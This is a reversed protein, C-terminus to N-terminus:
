LSAASRQQNDRTICVAAIMAALLIYGGQLLSSLQAPALVLFLIFSELLSSREFLLFLVIEGTSIGSGRLAEVFVVVPVTVMAVAAAYLVLAVAGQLSMRQHANGQRVCLEATTINASALIGVYQKAACVLMYLVASRLDVATYLLLTVQVVLGSWFLILLSCVQVAGGALLLFPVNM